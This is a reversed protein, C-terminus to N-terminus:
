VIYQTYTRDRHGIRDGLTQGIVTWRVSYRRQNQTVIDVTKKSLRDM